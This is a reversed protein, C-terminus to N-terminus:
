ASLDYSVGLFKGVLNMEKVEKLTNEVKADKVTTGCLYVDLM